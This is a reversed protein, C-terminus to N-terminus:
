VNGVNFLGLRKSSKDKGSFLQTHLQTHHQIGDSQPITGVVRVHINGTNAPVTEWTIAAALKALM